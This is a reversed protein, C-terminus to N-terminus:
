CPAKCYARSAHGHTPCTDAVEFRVTVSYNTEEKKLARLTVTGTETFKVGNTAYNLLAQQMRTPDGVLNHPLHETEILLHIGKAKVRESLISSVNAMLSSVGVPAEELTLKGAEIKSIDLVDNIVSLLHQASADITDLRQAQKSTVGERRLINAMGIIGNMPTRIEHSMNALFASKAVNAADAQIKALTLSRNAAELDATRVQVRQELDANLTRIESEAILRELESAARLAIREMTTEALSRSVLPRKGIVAILGIPKGTHSWLTVGIYSEARLEQLAPDNPFLQCVGSPFCCVQQGVVDGCPTDKLTYTVNDEFHGDHWVALTTANLGDGELRDICVYDMRLNQALFRALADFFPEKVARGGVQSLFANVEEVQKSETIDANIGIMREATGDEGRIVLANAKIHKVTGDPHTVRFVTDFGGEGNLAAQCEAIAREKDDPHLRNTWAEITNSSSERSIGYLEFMRDDWTMTNERVNWDWVGLAASSTALLLRQSQSRREEEAQKRETIDRDLGRYGLLQGNDDLVPVGNSQVHLLNGNRHQNINDLDRFPERKEAIANFIARVREAEGSPMLDFPTKGIIETAKYGLMDEVSDSAYIYRVDTDVEWIWDASANAIDRFRMESEKASLEAEGRRRRSVILAAILLSQALIFIGVGIVYFKYREWYTPVRNVFITNGPLRSMDGGWRKIQSWDFMPIVENTASTVAETLQRKGSLLDLVLQGASEGLKRVGVVSGGIGGNILNFDYLGFVPANATRVIMDEVEYAVTVKGEVDRNYQTFIIISSSPLSSVRKLMADLSVDSTYEFELKGKWPTAISAAEAAMRRDAESAGSVFVVRRTDPFLDLARELTGKIDFKALQSILRRQGVSDATPMPAQVTVAPAGQALEGGENLLFNLAPQQVTVVVEIHQDAYKRALFDKMRLRHQLDAKKRELDLFEFFLHNTTVGGTNLTAILGDDFVSIGKSGHGYSYLILVNKEQTQTTAPQEALCLIPNACVLACLLLLRAVIRRELNYWKILM